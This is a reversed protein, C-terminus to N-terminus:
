SGTAVSFFVASSIRLSPDVCFQVTWPNMRYVVGKFREVPVGVPSQAVVCPTDWVFGASLKLLKQM